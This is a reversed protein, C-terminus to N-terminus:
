LDPNNLDIHRLKEIRQYVDVVPKDKSLYNYLIDHYLDYFENRDKSSLYKLTINYLNNEQVFYTSYGHYTNLSDQIEFEVFYRKRNDEYLFEMVKCERMQEPGPTNFRQIAKRLYESLSITSNDYKLVM